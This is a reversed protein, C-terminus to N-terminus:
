KYCTGTDTQNAHYCELMLADGPVNFCSVSRNDECCDRPLSGACLTWEEPLLHCQIDKKFCRFPLVTKHDFRSTLFIATDSMLGLQM